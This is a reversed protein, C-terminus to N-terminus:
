LFSTGTGKEDVLITIHLKLLGIAFIFKQYLNDCPDTCKVRPPKACFLSNAAIHASSKGWTEISKLTCLLTISSNQIDMALLQSLALM